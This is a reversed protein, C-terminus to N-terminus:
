ASTQQASVYATARGKGRVRLYGQQVLGTLRRTATPKSIHAKVMLMRPTVRGERQVLALAHQAIIDLECFPQTNTSQLGASSITDPERLVPYQEQLQELDRTEDEFAAELSLQYAAQWHQRATTHEGMDALVEALNYQIRVMILRLHLSECIALCDYYARTAEQWRHTDYYVKGINLLAVALREGNGLDQFLNLAEGFAALANAYDDVALYLIGLNNYSDAVRALDGQEERKALAQRAFVVAQEFQSQQSHNHSLADYIDSCIDAHDQTAHQLALSLDKEASSWERRLMALWARDKLLMLLEPDSKDFCEEAQHYYSCALTQNYQEYLKGMRRYIRAQQSLTDAAKLACRCAKLAEERRGFRMALDCLLIQIDYWQHAELQTYEFRQLISYLQHQSAEDAITGVTALVMKAATAPFGAKQWHMAALLIDNHNAYYRAIQSHRNSRIDLPQHHYLYARLPPSLRFDAGFNATLILRQRHLYLLAERVRTVREHEAIGIVLARPIIEDCTAAIELLSRAEERCHIPRLVDDLAIQEIIDDAINNTLQRQLWAAVDNIARNREDFFTDANSIGTLAILTETYRGGEVFEDPHLPEVYRHRLINYRWWRPDRWTPDDSPRAEGIPYCTPEPALMSVAWQLLVRLANGREDATPSTTDRILAPHVLVSHALPSESLILISHYNKLAYNVQRTFTDDLVTAAVHQKLPPTTDHNM